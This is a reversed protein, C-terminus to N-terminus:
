TVLMRRDSKETRADESKVSLTKNATPQGSLSWKNTTARRM